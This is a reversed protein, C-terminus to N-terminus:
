VDAFHSAACRRCVSMYVSGSCTVVHLLLTIIIHLVQSFSSFGGNGEGGVVVLEKLGVGVLWVVLVGTGSVGGGVVLLLMFSMAITAKAKHRAPAAAQPESESQVVVLAGQHMGVDLLPLSLQADLEATPPKQLLLEWQADVVELVPM